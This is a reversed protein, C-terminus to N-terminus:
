PKLTDLTPGRSCMEVINSFLALVGTLPFAVGFLVVFCFQIILEQHLFNAYSPKNYSQSETFRSTQDLHFAMGFLVVFCFQIILEQHLTPM